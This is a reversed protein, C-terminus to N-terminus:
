PDEDFTNLLNMQWRLPVSFHLLLWLFSGLRVLDLLLEVGQDIAPFFFLM